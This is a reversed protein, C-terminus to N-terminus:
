LPRTYHDQVLQAGDDFLAFPRITTKSNAQAAEADMGGSQSGM